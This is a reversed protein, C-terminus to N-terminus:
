NKSKRQMWQKINKGCMLTIYNFKQTFLRCTLNKWGYLKTQVERSNFLNKVFISLGNMKVEEQSM